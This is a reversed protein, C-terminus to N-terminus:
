PLRVVDKVFPALLSEDVRVGLGACNAGPGRVRGRWGLGLCPRVIDRRLLLRGYGGEYYRVDAASLVFAHGAAALVSSEGVQCGLQCAVGAARALKLIEMSPTIGGCKSLRINFWSCAKQDILRRADDVSRLSEDAMVPVGAAEQVQRLGAFDQPAVPQEVVDIRFEKWRNLRDLAEPVQWAGNADVILPIAPGLIKRVLRLTQEDGDVGVKVKVATFKLMRVLWLLTRLKVLSSVSPIVATAYAARRGRPGLWGAFPIQWCRSVADLFATELACRAAGFYVRGEKEEPLTWECLRRALTGADQVSQVMQGLLFPGLTDRLVATSSAVTEGTVYTRPLGEGWGATGDELVAKVFISESGARKASAHRFSFRFPLDVHFIDLRQIKM